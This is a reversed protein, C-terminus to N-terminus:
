MENSKPSVVKLLTYWWVVSPDKLLIQGLCPDVM